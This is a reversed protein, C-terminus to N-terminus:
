VYCASRLAWENCADNKIMTESPGRELAVQVRQPQQHPAAAVGLPAVVEAVRREVQRRRPSVHVADGEEDVESDVHVAEFDTLIILIKFYALLVRSGSYVHNSTAHFLVESM